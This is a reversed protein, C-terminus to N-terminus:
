RTFKVDYVNHVGESKEATYTINLKEAQDLQLNIEKIYKVDPYDDYVVDYIPKVTSNSCESFSPKQDYLEFYVAKDNWGTTRTYLYYETNEFVISDALRVDDVIPEECGQNSCAAMTLCALMLSIVKMEM